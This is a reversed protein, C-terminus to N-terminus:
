PVGVFEHRKYLYHAAVGGATFPHLMLAIAGAGAQDGILPGVFVVAVPLGIGITIYKWWKPNWRTAARVYASDKFLAPYVMLGLFSLVFIYIGVTAAIATTATGDVTLLAYVIGLSFVICVAVYGALTYWYKESTGERVTIDRHSM